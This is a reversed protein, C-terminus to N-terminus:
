LVIEEEPQYARDARSGLLDWFHFPSVGVGPRKITLNESSFVDGKRILKLAVISKRVITVNEKESATIQKNADGLMKEVERIATVMSSFEGPESSVKHDPGSMTKDLTFHKEIVQAGRAVAAIAASIGVTHDSYGVMLGFEKHMVDMVRLNVDELPTPYASNCHLLMVKQKLLAKVQATQYAKKFARMSPQVHLNLYGFALVSLANEIELLASMGTSVIVDCRRQAIALLLPANTIEGSGLKVKKVDFNDVLFDLSEVDFISFLIEISKERCYDMIASYDSEALELRKLMAFQSDDKTQQYAAKPAHRTVLRSAKFAQFKVVDAGSAIAADILKKALDLSGNHNVGIEAIIKTKAIESM